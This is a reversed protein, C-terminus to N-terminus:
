QPTFLLVQLWSAPLPKTEVVPSPGQGLGLPTVKKSSVWSVRFAKQTKLYDLAAEAQKKTLEGAASPSIDTRNPDCLTVIVIESKSNPQSKLWTAVDNLHKHGDATLIASNTEFLDVTNYTVAEKRYDPRTMLAAADEVYSRIVPLKQVADTGQKVSRLTERGDKVFKDVDQTKTEVNGVATDARKVMSRSDKALSTLETYLKDDTVLKGLSGQGARVDQILMKAEDATESIKAAAQALDPTSKAALKGDALPGANPDGPQIAIVKSGLLGTSHIQASADAYLRSAYKSDLKLRLTVAAGPGDHDPYEIAVVQGADVGRIRVPTGPTIDHPEAFAVTVETTKAWLGQNGGIRVLGWGGLAVAALVFAGLTISQWRSLNHQM